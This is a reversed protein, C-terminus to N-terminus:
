PMASSWASTDSSEFGDGFIIAELEVNDFHAHYTGSEEFKRVSLRLRVSQTGSPSEVIASNTIWVSPSSPPVIGTLYAGLQSGSCSPGGYWQVLLNAYGTESQADPVLIDAAMKFGTEGTIGDICQLAGTSDGATTSLNTVLASGSTPDNDADLPDPDISASSLPFWGSVGTDFTPNAVLNQASALPAQGFTVLAVAAFFIVRM